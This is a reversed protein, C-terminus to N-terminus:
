EISGWASPPWYRWVVRGEIRHRPVPGFTRSDSSAAANDGLVVYSSELPSDPAIWAPPYTVGGPYPDRAVRKVIEEDGPGRLVVVERPRPPRRGLSWLDVLVRDGDHLAPEMSSGEVRWPTVVWRTVAFVGAAAVLLVVALERALRALTLRPPVAPGDM